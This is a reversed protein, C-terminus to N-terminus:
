KTFYVVTQYAVFLFSSVPPSLVILHFGLFHCSIDVSGGGLLEVYQSYCVWVNFQRCDSHELLYM